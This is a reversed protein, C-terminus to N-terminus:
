LLQDDETLNTPLQQEVDVNEQSVQAMRQAEQQESISIWPQVIGWDEIDLIDEWLEASKVTSFHPAVHQFAPSSYFQTLDQVMQAKEAFHRAAYPRVRGEGTIDEANLGIFQQIQFENDYVKIVQQNVLRRAMELMANLLNEVMEREFASIKSQFIRSAANELRQVEYKTKEGPTRMGMAEKPAGAMEEMQNQLFLIEQDAALVQPHPAMMEVDGDDGVYIHEFPGWEFDEVYGKIKLPPFATLDWLDAKMNELHDIRYQMGVLNDLPGMAWLNDPRVRWGVHYIPATGFWSSHVTNSIVKHRDVVKVVRNREFKGTEEDYYDGYFTLIEVYGSSLYDQYSDFGSIEYIADRSRVTGEYQTITNRHDNLYKWLAEAAQMEEPDGSAKMIMDKAEGISVLSRIIKPSHKFDPAVPNFVIDLPSIRRLVPGVYGKQEEGNAINRDDTWEVTAFANGYDIFDLVVKSVETYFENRDVVWEMYGEIVRVKEKLADQESDAEWQMWKRKPFMASMYNAYLNDRIQCLKPLTTKNSWPLSANSTQSTDTQFVYKKLEDWMDIKVQRMRDWEIWYNSIQCGLRDEEVVDEVQLVKGAM